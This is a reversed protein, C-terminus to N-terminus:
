RTSSRCVFNWKRVKSCKSVLKNGNELETRITTLRQRETDSRGLVYCQCEIKQIAPWLAMLTSELRTLTADFCDVRRKLRLVSALLEGAVAGLGAGIILDM